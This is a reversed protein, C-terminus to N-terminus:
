CSTTTKDNNRANFSSVQEGSKTDVPGLGLPKGDGLLQQRRKGGGGTGTKMMKNHGFQEQEEKMERKMPQKKTGHVAGVEQGGAFNAKPAMQPQPISNQNNQNGGGGGGTAAKEANAVNKLRQM